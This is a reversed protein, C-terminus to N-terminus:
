AAVSAKFARSDIFNSIGGGTGGHERFCDAGSLVERGVKLIDLSDPYNVWENSLWGKTYEDWSEAEPTEWIHPSLSWQGVPENIPQYRFDASIRFRDSVNPMGAHVTLSHFLVADGPQYDISAWRSDDPDVDIGIGGAGTAAQMPYVGGIQSGLLVRLGGDDMGVNGLPVWMTFFDITGAILPFDQHPATTFTPRQPWVVRAIKRPHVFAPMGFLGALMAIVAPDHALRHFSELRQIARYGGWWNEDGEFRAVGTPQGERNAWGHEEIARMIDKRTAFIAGPDFLGRFFLVGEEFLRKRLIDPRGIDVSADKLRQMIVTGAM